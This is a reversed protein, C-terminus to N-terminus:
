RQRLLHILFPPWSGSQSRCSYRGGTGVSRDPVLSFGGLRHTEDFRQAVVVAYYGSYDDFTAAVIPLKLKEGLFIIAMM